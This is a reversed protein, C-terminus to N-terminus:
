RSLEDAEALADTEATKETAFTWGCAVCRLHALRGLSGLYSADGGCAPCFHDHNM